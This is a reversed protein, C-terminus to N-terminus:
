NHVLIYFVQHLIVKISRTTAFQESDFNVLCLMTQVFETVIKLQTTLPNFIIKDSVKVPTFICWAPTFIQRQPVSLGCWHRCTNICTRSPCSSDTSQGGRCPWWSPLQTWWGASTSTLCNTYRMHSKWIRLRYSPFHHHLNKFITKCYQRSQNNRLNAFLLNETKLNQKYMTKLTTVYKLFNGIHIRNNMWWFNSLYPATSIIHQYGHHAMTHLHLRFWPAYNAPARIYGSPYFAGAITSFTTVLRTGTRFGPLSTM